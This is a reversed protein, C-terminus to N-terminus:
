KIIGQDGGGTKVKPLSSGSIKAGPNEPMFCGQGIQWTEFVRESQV